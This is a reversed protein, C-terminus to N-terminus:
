VQRRRCHMIMRTLASMGFAVRLTCDFSNGTGEPGTRLVLLGGSGDEDGSCVGGREDSAIIVAAILLGDSYFLIVLLLYSTFKVQRRKSAWGCSPMM